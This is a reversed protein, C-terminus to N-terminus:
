IIVNVHGRMHHESSTHAVHDTVTSRPSLGAKGGVTDVAEVFRLRQAILKLALALACSPLRSNVGAIRGQLRLHVHGIISVIM